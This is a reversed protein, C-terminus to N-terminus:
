YATARIAVAFDQLSSHDARSPLFIIPSGDVGLVHLELTHSSGLRGLSGVSLNFHVSQGWTVAPRYAENQLAPTEVVVMPLLGDDLKISAAGPIRLDSVQAGDGPAVHVWLSYSVNGARNWEVPGLYAFSMRKDFTLTGRQILEIPEPLAAITIGTREDLREQPKIPAHAGCSTLAAIIPIWVFFYYRM